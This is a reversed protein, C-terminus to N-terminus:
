GSESSPVFQRFAKMSGIDYDGSEHFINKLSYLVAGDGSRYPQVQTDGAVNRGLFEAHPINLHPACYLSWSLARDKMQVKDGRGGDGVSIAYEV